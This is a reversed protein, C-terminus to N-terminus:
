AALVSDPTGQSGQNPTSTSSNNTTTTRPSVVGTSLGAKTELEVAANLLANARDALQIAISQLKNAAALANEARVRAREAQSKVTEARRRASVARTEAQAQSKEKAKRERTPKAALEAEPTNLGLDAWRADDKSLVHNLENLIARLRIRLRKALEARERALVKQAAENAAVAALAAKLATARKKLNEVTVDVGENEWASRKGFFISLNGLLMLREEMSEPVKTTEGHFGAEGWVANWREGIKLRLLKVAANLLAASERNAEELAPTLTSVSESLARRYAADKDRLSTWAGHAIEGLSRPLDLSKCLRLFGEIM